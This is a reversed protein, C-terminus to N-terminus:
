QMEHERRRNEFGASVMIVSSDTKTLPVFQRSRLLIQHEVLDSITSSGEYVRQVEYVGHGGSIKKEM